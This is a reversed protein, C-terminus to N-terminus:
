IFFPKLGAPIKNLFIKYRAGLVSSLLKKLQGTFLCLLTLIFLFIVGSCFIKIFEIQNRLLYGIGAAPILALINLSVLLVADKLPQWFNIQPIHIKFFLAMVLFTLIACLILIYPYAFPGFRSIFIYLSVASIINITLNYIFSEKIKRTGAIISGSLPMLNNVILLLMLPRLFRVVNLSSELNFKGRKFFLNVIDPAFYCTFLALPIMIFLLLYNVKLYNTNLIAFDKASANENLQIHYISTLKSTLIEKPSDTLQKAYSLASIIGGAFNSMLYLPLIYVFLNTIVLIQNTIINNKLRNELSIKFSTFPWNLKKKMILLCVFIQVFYSASFGILMTKLGLINHFFILFFMPLLANLPFLFNISFIHYIYMISLIYSCLIYATFYLFALRLIYIDQSLINVSFKSIIAFIDIPFIFCIGVVVALLFIYLILFSNSFIKANEASHRRLYIAQPILVNGNLSSFFTVILGSISVIYFYVDCNTRTGFYYAILISNIFSLMKWVFTSGISLAAGQKYSYTKFFTM